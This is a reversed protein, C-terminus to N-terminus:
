RLAEDVRDLVSALAAVDLSLDHYGPRLDSAPQAHLLWYAHGLAGSLAYYQPNPFTADAIEVVHTGHPAFLLNALGAGHLSVVAAAQMMLEIQGRFPHDEMFVREFGRAALIEWCREEDLLRRRTADRRSIYLKRSPAGNEAGLRRRLETLLSPRYPDIGTVTLEDIRMVTPTLPLADRVDLMEVSAAVFSRLPPLIIHEGRGHQQLLAIKTLHWQLWHAYNRDWEELIWTARAFRVTPAARMLDRHFARQYMTGRVALLRDADDVIAYHSDGWEDHQVLVRCARVVGLTTPQMARQPVDWFSFGAISRDRSLDDRSAVNRPLPVEATAAPELIEIDDPPVSRLHRYGFWSPKAAFRTVLERSIKDLVRERSLKAPASM